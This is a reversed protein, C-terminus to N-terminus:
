GGGDPRAVAVSSRDLRRQRRPPPHRQRVQRHAPRDDRHHQGPPGAPLGRLQDEEAHHRQEAASPAAGPAPRSRSGAAPRGPQAPERVGVLEGAQGVPQSNLRRSRRASRSPRGTATSSSSRSPKLCTLSRNPCAVPSVRSVPMAARIRAATPSSPMIARSPPSSNATSTPRRGGTDGSRSASRSSSARRGEGPSSSTPTCGDALMPMASYPGCCAECVSRSRSASM